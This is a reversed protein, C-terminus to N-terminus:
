LGSTPLEIRSRAVWSPFIFSFEDKRKKNEECDVAQQAIQFMVQNVRETRVTMNKKSLYIGEPFLMNQLLRKQEFSSLEWTKATNRSIEIGKKIMKDLNSSNVSFSSIQNQIEIIRNGYKEKLQHYTEVEIEGEVYKEVLSEQKTKLAKQEAKIRREVSLHDALKERIKSNVKAELKDLNEEGLEFYQLMQMFATNVKKANINVAKESGRTKYYPIDGKKAIYGTFPAQTDEDKMFSKLPLSEHSKNERIDDGKTQNSVNNAKLFLEESVLAPHKGVITKNPILKHTVYGAYFPNEM